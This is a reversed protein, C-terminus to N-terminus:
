SEDNGHLSAPPTVDRIIGTRLLDDLE